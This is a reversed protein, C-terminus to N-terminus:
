EMPMYCKVGFNERLTNKGLDLKLKPRKRVRTRKIGISKFLRRDESLTKQKKKLGERERICLLKIEYDRSIKYDWM